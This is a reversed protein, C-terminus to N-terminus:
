VSVCIAFVDSRTSPSIVQLSPELVRLVGIFDKKHGLVKALAFQLLSSGFRGITENLFAVAADTQGMYEDNVVAIGRAATAALKYFGWQEFSALALSLVSLCKQWDPKEKKVENMWVADCLSSEGGIDEISQLVSDRESNPLTQILSIFEALDSPTKCSTALLSAVFHEPIAPGVQSQLFGELDVAKPSIEPHELLLRRFQLAIALRENIPLEATKTPAAPDPVLGYFLLMVHFRKRVTPDAILALETQMQHFLKYAVPSETVAAIRFQLLRFLINVAADNPYLTTENHLHIVWSLESAFLSFTQQPQTLISSVVAGLTRTNAGVFSHFICASAELQTLHACGLIADAIASNLAMIRAESFQNQAIGSLLPTLRYYKRAVEEVWAGAMEDFLEGSLTLAPAIDGIALVQDRRFPGLCLSLRYIL